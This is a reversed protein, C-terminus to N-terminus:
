VSTADGATLVLLFHQSSSHENHSTANMMHYGPYVKQKKMFIRGM